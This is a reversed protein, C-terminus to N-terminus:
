ASKLGYMDFACLNTEQNKFNCGKLCIESNKKLGIRAHGTAPGCILYMKLINGNKHSQKEVHGYICMLRKSNKLLYEYISVILVM